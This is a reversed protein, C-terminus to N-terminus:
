LLFITGMVEEATTIGDYIKKIGSQALTTMKNDIAAKILAEESANEMVLRKITEDVVLIEFIGTRGWYGTNLCHDCGRGRYMRKKSPDSIGLDKLIGKPPVYSVKCKPCIKKVLRQAIIAILASSLMYAQVGM